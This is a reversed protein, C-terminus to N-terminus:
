TIKNNNKLRLDSEWKYNQRIKKIKNLVKM